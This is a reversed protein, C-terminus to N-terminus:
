PRHEFLRESAAGYVLPAFRHGVSCTLRAPMDEKTEVPHISVAHLFTAPILFNPVSCILFFREKENEQFIVDSTVLDM